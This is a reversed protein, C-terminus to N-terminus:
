QQRPRDASWRDMVVTRVFFHISHHSWVLHRVCSIWRLDQPLDSEQSFSWFRCNIRFSHILMAVFTAGFLILRIFWLFISFIGNELPAYFFATLLLSGGSGLWFYPQTWSGDTMCFMWFVVSLRCMRVVWGTAKKKSTEGEAEKNYDYFGRGSKRGLRGEKVMNKILDTPKFLPNNPDSRHWGSFGFSQKFHFCSQCVHSAFDQIVPVDLCFRLWM